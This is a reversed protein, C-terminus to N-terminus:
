GRHHRLCCPYRGRLLRLGLVGGAIAGIGLVLAGAKVAPPLTASRGTPAGVADSAVTEEPCPAMFDCADASATPAGPTGKRLPPSPWDTGGAALAAQILGPLERRIQEVGMLARDGILLFPVSARGRAYGYGEALDFFASIDELSVMEILRVELAPGYQAQLQPLIDDLVEHCHGCGEAWYLVARVVGMAQAPTTTGGARINESPTPSTATGKPSRGKILRCDECDQAGVSALFLGMLALLCTAGGIIACLVKKRRRM